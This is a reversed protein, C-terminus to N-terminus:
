VPEAERAPSSEAALSMSMVVLEDGASANSASLRSTAHRQLNWGFGFNTLALMLAKM